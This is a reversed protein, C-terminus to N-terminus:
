LDAVGAHGVGLEPPTAPRIHLGDPAFM